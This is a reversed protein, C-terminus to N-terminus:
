DDATALTIKESRAGVEEEAESDAFRKVTHRVHRIRSVAGRKGILPPSLLSQRRTNDVIETHMGVRSLPKSDM